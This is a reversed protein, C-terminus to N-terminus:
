ESKPATLAASHAHAFDAGVTVDVGAPMKNGNITINQTPTARVFVTEKMGMVPKGDKDKGVKVEQLVSAPYPDAWPLPNHETGLKPAASKSKSM